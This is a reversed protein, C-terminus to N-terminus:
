KDNRVEVVDVDTIFVDTLGYDDSLINYAYIAAMHPNLEEVELGIDINKNKASVYYKNNAM